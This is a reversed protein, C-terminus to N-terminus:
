KLLCLWIVLFHICATSATTMDGLLQAKCAAHKLKAPAVAVILSLTVLVYLM